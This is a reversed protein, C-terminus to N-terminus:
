TSMILSCYSGKVDWNNCIVGRKPRLSQYTMEPDTLAEHLSFYTYDRYRVLYTLVFKRQQPLNDGAVHGQVEYTLENDPDSEM